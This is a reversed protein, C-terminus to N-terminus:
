DSFRNAAGETMRAFTSKGGSSYNNPDFFKDVREQSLQPSPQNGKDKKRKARPVSVLTDREEVNVDAFVTTQFTARFAYAHGTDADKPGSLSILLLDRFPPFVDSIVEVLRAEEMIEQMLLYADNSPKAATVGSAAPVNGERETAVEGIPTDSVIGEVVVVTPALIFHDTILAGTEIPHTTAEGTRQPDISILADIAYGDITVM